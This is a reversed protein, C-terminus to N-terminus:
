ALTDVILYGADAAVIKEDVVHSPEFVNSHAGEDRWRRVEFDRAQFTYGFSMDRLAPRPNIYGIWVNDNWVPALSATQGETASDYRAEGVFINEIEFLDKLLDITVIDKSTYKIRDRIDTCQKLARFVADSIAMANPRVGVDLLAKKADDVDKVPTATSAASWQSTGSLTVKNSTAYQTADQVLAAIRKEQALLLQDTLTEVTTTEIAIPTDANQYERDDILDHLAHEDCSYTDTTVTWSSQKSRTKPARLTEPTRFREKGFRYFKDSEKKVPVIPLVQTGILKNNRYAISINTLVADVHIDRLDPM